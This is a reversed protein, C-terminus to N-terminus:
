PKKATFRVNVLESPKTPLEKSGAPYSNYSLIYALTDAYVQPKLSGPETKPMLTEMRDLLKAIRQRNWNNVFEDGTLPLAMDIGQLKDGHCVECHEAYLAKGRKAQAATYIGDWQTMVNQAVASGGIVVAGILGAALPFISKM